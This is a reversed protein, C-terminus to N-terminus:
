SGSVNPRSRRSPAPRKRVSFGFDGLHKGLGYYSGHAYALLGARDLRLKGSPDILAEDVAIAVIDALFMDHTGLPIVQTVRCELSLPCQAIRPAGIQDSPEATLSCLAFKDTDAGSRVGCFDVARVLATTTLNLVFEGSEKIIPYSHRQPRLSIYTKPPQTNLIGTWAVT